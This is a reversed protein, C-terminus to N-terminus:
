DNRPEKRGDDDHRDRDDRDRDEKEHNRRETRFEFESTQAQNGSPDTAIIQFRYRTDPQLGTLEIEHREQLMRDYEQSAYQGSGTGYLIKSKALEDTEWRIVASTEDTRIEVKRIKPPKNDPSKDTMFRQEREDRGTNGSPDTSSVAYRYMQHAELDLLIVMHYRTMVTSATQRDYPEREKGFRVVSDSLEDTVWAIIAMRDSVYVERPKGIIVPPKTDPDKRTTFRLTKTATPGNGSRDIIKVDFIYSTRPRLGTLIVSHDTGYYAEEVRNESLSRRGYRVTGLAEEDTRFTVVALTDSVYDVRPGEAFRPATTDTTWSTYFTDDRSLVPGHGSYDTLSVRYHYLTGPTLGTITMIHDSYYDDGAVSQGYGATAGYEVSAMTAKDTVFGITAITDTAYMVWPGSVFSPPRDQSATDMTVAYATESLESLNMSKDVAQVNYRYLTMPFLGTDTFGEETSYGVMAGNRYIRYGMVRINDTAALYTLRITTADLAAGRLGAPCSPPIFDRFGFPDPDLVYGDGLSPTKEFTGSEKLSLSYGDGQMQTTTTYLDSDRLEVDQSFLPIALITMLFLFPIKKM